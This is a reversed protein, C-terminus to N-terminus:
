GQGAYHKKLETFWKPKFDGKCIIEGNRYEGVVVFGSDNDYFFASDCYPLIRIVDDYRKGFCRKVDDEQINHGGRAVRNKIRGVSEDLTDLGIYFLQVAYGKERAARITRETKM